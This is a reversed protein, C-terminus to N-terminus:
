LSTLSCRLSAICVAAPGGFFLVQRAATRLIHNSFQLADRQWDRKARYELTAYSLLDIASEFVHLTSQAPRACISFSHRKDSGTAEGKFAGVTGRLAAYRVVGGADYGVFVANHYEKSEYLLRHEICYDIVSRAIGRGALYRVVQAPHGEQAEPLMLHHERKKEPQSLSAPAVEARYGLLLGVADPFTMGKVKILYDLASWGGIGRSFWYWKGNSIKLSDHTKTCYNGTSLQVLEQPEYIQLYFLLDLAKAQQIEEFSYYKNM